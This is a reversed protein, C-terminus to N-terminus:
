VGACGREPRREMDWRHIITIAIVPHFRAHVLEGNENSSSNVSDLMTRVTLKLVVNAALTLIAFILLTNVVIRKFAMKVKLSSPNYPSPSEPPLRPTAQRFSATRLALCM